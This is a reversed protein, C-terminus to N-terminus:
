TSSNVFDNYLINKEIISSYVTSFLKGFINRGVRSQRNRGRIDNGVDQIIERRSRRRTEKKKMMKGKNIISKRGRTAETMLIMHSGMINGRAIKTPFLLVGKRM